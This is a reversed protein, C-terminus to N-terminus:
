LYYEPFEKRTKRKINVIRSSEKGFYYRKDSNFQIYPIIQAERELIEIIEGEFRGRTINTVKFIFREYQESGKERFKTESEFVDGVEVKM